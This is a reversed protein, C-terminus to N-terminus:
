LNTPQYVQPSDLQISASDIGEISELKRKVSNICGMCTMGEIKYKTTIM